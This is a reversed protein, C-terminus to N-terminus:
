VNDCDIRVVAWRQDRVRPLTDRFWGALFRVQDDLLDYLRFNREVEELPVALV